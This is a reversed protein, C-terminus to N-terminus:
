QIIRKKILRLKDIFKFLRGRYGSIAGNKIKARYTEDIAKFLRTHSVGGIRMKVTTKDIFSTVLRDKPRLLLEYDGSVKYTSDFIGYRIFLSRSHFCGVHWTCMEQKFREWVWADGVTRIPSLDKNVLEIRSSVFELEHQKPHKIIHQVYTQLADPYLQDDAGVFAIWEGKAIAIGKNWADYIGLDPESIWYALKSEYQKIIDVTGDSSGGDIIIYEFNPYSQSLISVICDNLYTQANYVATIVSIYPSSDMSSSLTNSDTLVNM